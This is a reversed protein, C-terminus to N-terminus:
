FPCDEYDWEDCGQAAFDTPVEGHTACRNGNSFKTCGSCGGDVKEFEALTARLRQIQALIEDRTM